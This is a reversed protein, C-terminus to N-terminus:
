VECHLFEATFYKGATGHEDDSSRECAQPVFRALRDNAHLLEVDCAQVRDEVFLEQCVLVM